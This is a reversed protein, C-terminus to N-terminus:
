AHIEMGQLFVDVKVSPKFVEDSFQLFPQTYRETLERVM